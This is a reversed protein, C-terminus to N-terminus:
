LLFKIDYLLNEELLPPRLRTPGQVFRVLYAPLLYTWVGMNFWVHISIIWIALFRFSM